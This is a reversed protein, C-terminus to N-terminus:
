DGIDLTAVMLDLVDVWTALEEPDSSSTSIVLYPQDNGVAPLNGAVAVIWIVMPEQSFGGGTAAIEYRVAAVGDVTYEDTRTIEGDTSFDGGPPLEAAIAADGGSLGSGYGVWSESQFVTCGPSEPQAYTHWNLPFSITYEVDTPEGVTTMGDVNECTQVHAFADEPAM